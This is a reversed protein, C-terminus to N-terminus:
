VGVEKCIVRYILLSLLKEADEESYRAKEEETEELIDGVLDVASVNYYYCFLGGLPLGSAYDAFARAGVIGNVRYYRHDMVRMFDDYLYKCINEPSNEDYSAPLSGLEKEEQIHEQVSGDNIIYSLVKEYVKKSNTRLM